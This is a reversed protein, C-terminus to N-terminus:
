LWNLPSNLCFMCVYTILFALTFYLHIYFSTWIWLIIILQMGRFLIKLKKPYSIKQRGTVNKVVWLWLAAWVPAPGRLSLYGLSASSLVGRWSTTQGDSPGKVAKGSVDEGNPPMTIDLLSSDQDCFFAPGMLTAPAALTNVMHAVKLKSKFLRQPWMDVETGFNECLIESQALRLTPLYAWSVKEVM